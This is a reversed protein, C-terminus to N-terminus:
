FPKGLLHSTLAATILRENFSSIFNKGWIDTNKVLTEFSFSDFLVAHNQLVSKCSPSESFRPNGLIEVIGDVNHYFSAPQMFSCM